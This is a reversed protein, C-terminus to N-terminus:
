AVQAANQVELVQFIASHESDVPIVMGGALRATRLLEPGACVISEKNALAVIAGMKAAAMTPALGAFGVIASMVWQADMAAAEAVAASGAATRVGSGTLLERLRPLAAEDEIVAIEPRWKLAQEALREVNKGAALAVIEVEAKAQELLDLTSVGVSGTSGLVSVKRPLSLSGM